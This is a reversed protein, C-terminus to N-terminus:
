KRKLSAVLTEVKRQEDVGEQDLPSENRLTHWDEESRSLMTLANRQNRTLLIRGLGAYARARERLLGLDPMENVTRREVEALAKGFVLQAETQLGRSQMSLLIAGYRNLVDPYYVPDIPEAVKQLLDIARKSSARAEELRGESALIAAQCHSVIALTTLTNADSPNIRLIPEMTERSIRIMPNARDFKGETALFEAFRAETAAGTMQMVVNSPWRSLERGLYLHSQEFAELAAAQRGMRAYTRAVQHLSVQLGEWNDPNEPALEVAKQFLRSATSALSVAMDLRGRPALTAWRVDLEGAALLAAPDSPRASAWETALAHASTFAKDAEEPDAALLCLETLTKFLPVGINAQFPHARWEQLLIHRAKRYSQLAAKPDNLGPMGYGRQLYGIRHYAIGLELRVERDDPAERSLNDLYQLATSLLAKRATTAGSLELISDHIDFILSHSLRQLERFRREATAREREAIRERWLSVGTTLVLLLLFATVVALSKRHRRAFKRSLYRISAPVAVVPQNELYRKVDAAFDSPSGYRDARDKELAKLAISDLDGRMERILVRPETRRKQALDWATSGGHIRIASSPRVPDQQRLRRLFEELALPQFEIPRSGTLIEYFIIGLSYVDTRTDIDEGSSNAQEPSMYEPTGILTGARTFMTDGALNRRLAKAVGFDIIKPAPKGDVETVLINSPKLDRHIIAKQHAHQVGDCVQIFLSLRERTTLQHRDCYVTIPVGAVYEMVFYPAGEPTSGADFVKAIAPHDMLALAQRESEFRAIVERTNMGAKVLKLAVRRRVPEQQEALWVEGMGGEGIKQLLRYRDVVADMRDAEDPNKTPRSTVGDLGTTTEREPHAEGPILTFDRAVLEFALTKLFDDVSNRALLSEVDHKLAQDGACEFEIFASRESEAMTLASHYLREIRQWRKPDM